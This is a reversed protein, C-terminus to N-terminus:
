VKIVFSVVKTVYVCVCVCVGGCLLSRVKWARNSEKCESLSQIKKTDKNPATM